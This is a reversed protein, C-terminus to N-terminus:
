KLSFAAVIDTDVPWDGDLKQNLLIVVRKSDPTWFANKISIAAVKTKTPNTYVPAYGLTMSDTGASLTLQLNEGIVMGGLTYGAPAVVGATYGGQIGFVSVEKSKLAAELSTSKLPYVLSPGQGGIKYIVLSKGSLKSSQVIAYFDPNAGFGLFEMTIKDTDQALVDAPEATVAVFSAFALCGAIALNRISKLCSSKKM